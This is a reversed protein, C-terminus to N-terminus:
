GGGVQLVFDTTNNPVVQGLLDFLVLDLGVAAQTLRDSIHKIVPLCQGHEQSLGSDGQVVIYAFSGEFLRNQMAIIGLESNHQTIM